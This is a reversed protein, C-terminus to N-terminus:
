VSVTPEFLVIATRGPYWWSPFDDPFTVRLGYADAGRALAVRREVTSLDYPHGVVAAPAGEADRLFYDHDSWGRYDGDSPRRRRRQETLMARTFHDDRRHWWGHRRAFERVMWTRDSALAAAHAQVAKHHDLRQRPTPDAPMRPAAEILSAIRDAVGEPTLRRLTGRLNATNITM